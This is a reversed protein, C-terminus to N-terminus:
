VNDLLHVIYILHEPPSTCSSIYLILHESSTWSIDLFVHGPFSTLSVIDLFRHGPLFTWSYINQLLHGLFTWSSIEPLSTWSFINSIGLFLHGPLCKQFSIYLFLHLQVSYLLFNWSSIDLFSTYMCSFIDLFFNWTSIDLFLHKCLKTLCFSIDLCFNWSSINLFLHKCLKTLCFSIDLFIQRRREEKHTNCLTPFYNKLKKRSYSTKQSRFLLESLFVFLESKWEKKLSRSSRIAWLQEKTFLSMLSRSVSVRKYLAFLSPLFDSKPM